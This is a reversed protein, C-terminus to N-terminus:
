PADTPRRSRRLDGWMARMQEVTLILSGKRGNCVWCLLMQNDLRNSGGKSLPVIHDRTLETPKDEGCVLCVKDRKILARLQRNTPRGRKRKPTGHGDLRRWNPDRTSYVNCGCLFPPTKGSYIAGCGVHQWRPM